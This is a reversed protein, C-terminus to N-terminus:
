NKKEFWDTRVEPANEQHLKWQDDDVFETNKMFSDYFLDADFSPDSHLRDILVKMIYIIADMIIGKLRDEQKKSRMISIPLSECGRLSIDDDATLSAENLYQKGGNVLSIEVVYPSLFTFHKTHHMLIGIIYPINTRKSDSIAGINIIDIPVFCVGLTESIFIDRRYIDGHKAGNILDIANKVCYSVNAMGNRNSMKKDLGSYIDYAMKYVTPLGYDGFETIVSKNGYCVSVVYKNKEKRSVMKLVRGDELVFNHKNILLDVEDIDNIHNTLNVYNYANIIKSADNFSLDDIGIKKMTEKIYSVIKKADRKEMDLDRCISEWEIKRESIRGM